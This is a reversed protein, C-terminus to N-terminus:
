LGLEKLTYNKGLKMNKYMTGQDFYPFFIPTNGGNLCIGIFEKDSNSCSGQKRIYKVIHRFPKIVNRIYEKEKDDLIPEEVLIFGKRNM